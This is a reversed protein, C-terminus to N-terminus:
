KVSDILEDINTTFHLEGAEARKLSSRYNKYIRERKDENLYKNLLFRVQIKEEYPLVQIEEIVSSFSM